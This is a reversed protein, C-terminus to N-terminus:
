TMERAWPCGRAHLDRTELVLEAYACRVGCREHEVVAPYGLSVDQTAGLISVPLDKAPPSSSTRCYAGPLPRSPTRPERRARARAARPSIRSVPRPGAYPLAREAKAPIRVHLRLKGPEARLEVDARSSVSFPPRSPRCHSASSAPPKSPGLRFRPRTTVSTVSRKHRATAASAAVGLRLQELLPARSAFIRSMKSPFAAFEFARDPRSPAHEAFVLASRRQLYGWLGRATKGVASRSGTVHQKLPWGLIDKVLQAYDPDQHGARRRRGPPSAASRCRADSAQALHGRLISGKIFPRFRRSACAWRAHAIAPGGGGRRDPRGHGM